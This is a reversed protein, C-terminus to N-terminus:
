KKSFELIYNVRMENLKNQSRIKDLVNKIKEKFDRIYELQFNMSMLNRLGSLFSEEQSKMIWLEIIDENLSNARSQQM